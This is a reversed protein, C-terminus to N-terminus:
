QKQLWLGIPEFWLFLITTFISIIIILATELKIIFKNDSIIVIYIAHSIIMVFLMIIYVIILEKPRAIISFYPINM